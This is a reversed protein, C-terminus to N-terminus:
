LRRRDHRKPYGGLFTIVQSMESASLRSFGKKFRSLALGELDEESLGRPLRLSHVFAIQNASAMPGSAWPTPALVPTHEPVPTQAPPANELIRIARVYSGSKAHILVLEVSRGIDDKSAPNGQFTTGYNIWLSQGQIMIGQRNADALVGALTSTSSPAPPAPAVKEAPSSSAVLRAFDRRMGRLAVPTFFFGAVLRLLIKLAILLRM